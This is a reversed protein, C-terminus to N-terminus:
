VWGKAAKAANADLATQAEKEHFFKHFQAPLSDPPGAEMVRRVDKNLGISRLNKLRRVRSAAEKLFARTAGGEGLQEGPLAASDCMITADCRLLEERARQLIERLTEDEQEFMFRLKAEVTHPVGM